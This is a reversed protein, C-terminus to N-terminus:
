HWSRHAYLAELDFPDAASLTAFLPPVAVPAVIVPAPRARHAPPCGKGQPLPEADLKRWVTVLLECDIEASHQERRSRDIQYYDCLHDLKRGKLKPLRQKAVKHTCVIRQALVELPSLQLRSFEGNLVSCDFSASHAYCIAGALFERLPQAIDAFPPFQKLFKDRLGHVKIAKHHVRNPAPNVYRHFRTGLRGTAPDFEIGAFEILRRTGFGTTETDIVIHRPSANM